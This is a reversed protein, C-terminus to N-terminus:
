QTVDEQKRLSLTEQREFGFDEVTFVVDKARIQAVRLRGIQDGTRLKHRKGDKKERLIAVSNANSRMDQYVGVLMLDGLEPGTSKANVLSAFPDRAGGAYAFSERLVDEEPQATSDAPAANAALTVAQPRAATAAPSAAERARRASDAEALARQEPTLAAPAAPEPRTTVPAQAAGETEQEKSGGCAALMAALALM